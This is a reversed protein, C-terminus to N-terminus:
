ERASTRIGYLGNGSLHGGPRQRRVPELRVRDLQSEGQVLRADNRADVRGDLRLGPPQADQVQKACRHSPQEPVHLVECRGLGVVTV